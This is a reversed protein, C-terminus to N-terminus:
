GPSEEFSHASEVCQAECRSSCVLFIRGSGFVRWHDFIPYADSGRTLDVLGYRIVDMAGGLIAGVAMQVLLTFVILPNESKQKEPKIEERNSIKKELSNNMAVHPKVALHPETRSNDPLPFPHESAPLEWM